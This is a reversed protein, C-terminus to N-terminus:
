SIYRHIMVPKCSHSEKLLYLHLLCWKLIIMLLSVLRRGIAPKAELQRELEFADEPTKMPLDVEPLDEEETLRSREAKLSNVEKTLHRVEDALARVSKKMEAELSSLANLVETQFGPSYIIFFNDLLLFHSM